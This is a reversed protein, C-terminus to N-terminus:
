KQKNNNYIRIYLTCYEGISTTSNTDEETEVEHLVFSIRRDSHINACHDLIHLGTSGGSLNALSILSHAAGSPPVNSLAMSWRRNNASHVPPRAEVSCLRERGVISSRRSSKSPLHLHTERLFTTIEHLLQCAVLKLPLPCNNNNEKQLKVSLFDPEDEPTLRISQKSRRGDDSSSINTTGTSSVAATATTTISNLYDIDSQLLDELRSSLLEGWQYFARGAARQLTTSARNKTVVQSSRANIGTGSPRFFNFNMRMWVPWQGRNCRHVFHGCEILFAARAIVPAKLDLMAAVLQADPITGPSCSELLFQFKLMGDKLIQLPITKSIKITIEPHEYNRDFDLSNKRSLDPTDEFSNQKMKNKGFVNKFQNEM